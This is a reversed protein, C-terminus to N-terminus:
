LRSRDGLTPSQWAPPEIAERLRQARRRWVGGSSYGLRLRVVEGSALVLELRYMRTEDTIESLKVSSIYDIAYEASSSRFASRYRVILVRRASDVSVTLISAFGLVLVGGVVPVAITWRPTGFRLELGAAVLVICGMLWFLLPWDRFVVQESSRM